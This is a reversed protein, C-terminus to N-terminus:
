QVSKSDRRVRAAHTGLLVAGAACLTFVASQGLTNWDVVEPFTALALIGLVIAGVILGGARAQGSSREAHDPNEASGM